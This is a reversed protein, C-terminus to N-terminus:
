FIVWVIAGSTRFTFLSYNFIPFRDGALATKKPNPSRKGRTEGGPSNDTGGAIRAARGDQERGRTAHWPVLREVPPEAELCQREATVGMGQPLFPQVLDPGAM